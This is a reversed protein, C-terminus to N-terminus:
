KKAAPATTEATKAAPKAAPKAAKKVAEKKAAVIKLDDIKKNLAKINADLKEVQEKSPLKFTDLMQNIKEDIAESVWKVLKDTKLFQAAEKKAASKAKKVGKKIEEKKSFQDIVTKTIDKGTKTLTVQIKEGKKVMEALQEPKIYKKNVTDFFRGNAYKKINLM